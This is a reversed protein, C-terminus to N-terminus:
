HDPRPHEFGVDCLALAAVLRAKVASLRHILILPSSHAAQFLGRGPSGPSCSKAGLSDAPPAPILILWVFLFLDWNLSATWARHKSRPAVGVHKAVELVVFYSRILFM